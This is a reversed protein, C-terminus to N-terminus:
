GGLQNLNLPGTFVPPTDSVSTTVLGIGPMVGSYVVNSEIISFSDYGFSLHDIFDFNADSYDIYPAIGQFPKQVAQNINADLFYKFFPIMDVEKISLNDVIFQSQSLGYLGSGRFHMALNRKNYFYEVKTKSKTTLHNINQYIPLYMTPYDIDFYSPWQAPVISYSAYEPSTYVRRIGVNLNNFHILPEYIDPGKYGSKITGNINLKYFSDTQQEIYEIETTSYTLLDFEVVTYRNKEIESDERNNIIINPSNLDLIGGGSIADVLLEKGEVLTNENGITRSFTITNPGVSSFTWGQDLFLQLESGSAGFYEDFSSSDGVYNGFVKYKTGLKYKRGNLSFSDRFRSESSLVEYTPHGFLNNESYSKQSIANVLTQPKGINVASSDDYNVDIWSKYVFVEDSEFSQQSTKRSTNNDFFTFNQILGDSIKTYINGSENSSNQNWDLDTVIFYDSEVAIVETEGDYNPNITKDDKDIVIKDGVIFKHPQSFTLGVKGDSYRTDFFSATVSIKSNFHGGDFTGDIWNTKYMETIFPSGKFLGNNWNGTFYGNLFVGNLWVNKTVKIRHFESDKEVRRVPFSTDTQVYIYGRRSDIGTESTSIVTFYNKLLKRNENIDIAVINGISIKDGVKLTSVSSSPGVLQIGWKIDSFIRYSLNVDDFEVVIEDDRWGSNWVGNEWIGANFRGNGMKSFVRSVQLSQTANVNNGFGVLTSYTADTITTQFNNSVLHQENNEVHYGGDITVDQITALLQGSSSTGGVFTIYKNGSLQYFDANLNTGTPGTLSAILIASNKWSNFSSTSTTNTPINDSLYLYIGDNATGAIKQFNFHLNFFQYNIFRTVYNTTRYVSNPQKLNNPGGVPYKTSYSATGDHWIFGTTNGVEIFKWGLGHTEPTYNNTGNDSLMFGNISWNIESFNMGKIGLGSSKSFKNNARYKVYRNSTYTSTPQSYHYLTNPKSLIPVNHGTPISATFQSVNLFDNYGHPSISFSMGKVTEQVYFQSSQTGAFTPVSSLVSMTGNLPLSSASVSIRAFIRDGENFSTGPLRLYGQTENMTIPFNGTSSHGTASKDQGPGPISVITPPLLPNSFNPITFTGMVITSNEFGAAPVFFAYNRSSSTTPVDTKVSSVRKRYLIQLNSGSSSAKCIDVNFDETADNSRCRFYIRTGLKIEKLQGVNKIKYASYTVGNLFVFSDSTNTSSQSFGFYFIPASTAVSGSLVTPTTQITATSNGWGAPFLSIQKYKITMNVTTPLLAKLKFTLDIPSGSQPQFQYAPFIMAPINPFIGTTSTVITEYIESGQYIDLYITTPSSISTINIQILHDYIVPNSVLQIKNQTLDVFDTALLSSVNTTWASTPLSGGNDDVLTHTKSSFDVSSLTTFNTGSSTITQTAKTSYTGYIVPAAYELPIITDSNTLYRMDTKIVQTKDARFQRTPTNYFTLEPLLNPNNIQVSMATGGTAGSTFNQMWQTSSISNYSSQWPM